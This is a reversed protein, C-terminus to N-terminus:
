QFSFSLDPGSYSSSSQHICVPWLCCSHSKSSTELSWFTQIVHNSSFVKLVDLLPIPKERSSFCSLPELDSRPKLITDLEDKVISIVPGSEQSKYYEPNRPCLDPEQLTLGHALPWLMSVWQPCPSVEVRHQPKSSRLESLCHNPPSPPVKLSFGQPIFGFSKAQVWLCGTVLAFIALCGKGLIWFSRTAIIVSQGRICIRGM